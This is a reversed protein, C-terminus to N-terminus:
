KGTKSREPLPLLIVFKAGQGQEGGEYIGGGHAEVIGKVISLGLGMGKVRSSFFPQFISNKQDPSVGPGTDQVEITAYTRHTSLHAARSDAITSLRTRVSVAGEEVYHFANEVLESVARRLRRKDIDVVHVDPSFEINLVVESRKPYSEELVEKVFDNLEVPDKTLQTATLFDRFEQLIEEIHTVDLSLYKHVQRLEDMDLTPQELQFGLENVDGKLAFVRNGIMHSSKASLEGWAIMRESHMMRQVNRISQLVSALQEAIAFLVSQDSETFRNDLYENETVRRLARLVGIVKGRWVVPVALFSAIQESPFEVHMGRWRPDSQPNEILVPTGTEIVSGTLGEGRRYKIEGVQDKLRGVSGRLVFVDSQAELLFLSFAQFRLVDGAVGIVADILEEETWAQDLANAIELLARERVQAEQRGLVIAAMLAIQECIALSEDTYADPRDSEVNLVARIRGFQDRVPVAIESITTGFLNRYRPEDGVNGTRFSKGTAAVYGVIGERTSVDVQMHEGSADQWERGLGHVLELCGLEDNMRAIMSNRSRTLELAAHNLRDFAADADSEYAVMGLLATLERETNLGGPLEADGVHIYQTHITRGVQTQVLPVSSEAWCLLNPYPSRFSRILEWRM